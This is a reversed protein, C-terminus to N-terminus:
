GGAIPPFFSVVDGENLTSGRHAQQDNVMVVCAIDGFGLKEALTDVTVSEELEVIASKGKAGSPLFKTLSAFLRVELKM